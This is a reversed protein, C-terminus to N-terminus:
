EEMLWAVATALTVDEEGDQHPNVLVDPRINVPYEKGTRDAVYGSALYIKDGNPLDFDANTTTYGGSVQGFTKTNPRGLFTVVTMEGSSSTSSGFLVAIKPADNKLKYPKKVTLTPHGDVGFEGENYYWQGKYGTAKNVFYGMNESNGYLPGLGAIMPHMNGGRNPRLDVVWAEIDHATDLAKILGQIKVAFAVNAQQNRSSYEPVSIYGINNPLLKAKPAATSMQGQAYQTVLQKTQMFSHNDGKERLKSLIHDKPSGVQNISDIGLSLYDLEQHIEDWDLADAYISNARVIEELKALYDVVSEAPPRKPLELENIEIADFNVTGTGEFYGGLILKDTKPSLTLTVEYRKWAASSTLEAGQMQGNVFGIRENEKDRVQCWISAKGELNEAKMYFRIVIKKFHDVVVPVVQSFTVNKVPADESITLALSQRGAYGDARNLTSITGELQRLNWHAPHSVLTDNETEFSGNKIQGFSSLTVLFCTIVLFTRITNM